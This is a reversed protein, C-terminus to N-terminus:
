KRDKLLWKWIPIYRIKGRIGFWSEIEEGEFENNLIILNECRLSEQGKLLARVEREKTRLDKLDCCVQILGIIKVGKKIVFDIEEERESKWYYVKIEGEYDQKKLEIAVLNEYLYGIDGTSQLSKAYIFGNDICYIKKNSKLQEGVKYSFRPIKFLLYAEELFNIYKEVTHVSRCGIIQTLKNYSFERGINSILYTALEDIETAKRIKYRRVIDKYILGDFLTSIYDKININKVLPEPFGGYTIYDILKTKIESETLEESFLKLKESFSFTFVYIPIYRGTLHTGLEKSLLKSNSGTIILNYGQRHLRNVFLEWNKLNQIEDFLITKPNEYVLKLGNILDDYNEIKLLREDEFNIYGFDGKKKLVNIGLFSKGARRPGTIVKILDNEFKSYNIDREIFKEKFRDEIERKQTILIDRIKEM